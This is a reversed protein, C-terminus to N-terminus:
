VDMPGRNGAALCPFRPDRERRLPTERELLSRRRLRRLRRNVGTSQIILLPSNSLDLWAFERVIPSRPACFSGFYAEDVTEPANCGHLEGGTSRTRPSKRRSRPKSGTRGYARMSDVSSWGARQRRAQSEHLLCGINRPGHAITEIGSPWDAQDMGTLFSGVEPLVQSGPARVAGGAAKWIMARM